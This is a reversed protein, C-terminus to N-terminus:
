HKHDEHVHITKYGSFISSILGSREKIDCLWGSYFHQIVFGIVLWMLIHHINRIAQENIIGTGWTTGAAVTGGPDHIGYLILGTAILGFYMLFVFVYAAAAVPNHGVFDPAKRSLFTYFALAGIMEKRGEATLYPFFVRWHAYENGKFAWYIRYLISVTFAFAFFFHVWRMWMMVTQPSISQVITFPHAIFLGTVTLIFISLANVWHVLRVPIEWVYKIALKAM